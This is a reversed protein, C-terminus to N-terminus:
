PGPKGRDVEGDGRYLSIPNWPLAIGERDLRKKLRRLAERQVKWRETPRVKGLVRVVVGNEGLRDVGLVEPEALFAEKWEADAAMDAMEETLTAIIHDVDAEFGVTVDLVVQGYDRTMNTAVRIEGNPVYHVNGAVDRLVTVRLRIDEVEGRTGALSVSDGIRYQDELLIFFGGVVDRILQQAGLGIAIGVASGVAVFPTLPLGWVASFITLVGTVSLVVLLLRRIVSWLTAARAAAEGKHGMRSILRHGARAAMVYLVAFVGVVIISAALPRLLESPSM